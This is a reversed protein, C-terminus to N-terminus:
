GTIPPRPGGQIFNWIEPPAEPLSAGRIDAFPIPNVCMLVQLTKIWYRQDDIPYLAFNPPLGMGLELGRYRSIFDFVEELWDVVPDGTLEM